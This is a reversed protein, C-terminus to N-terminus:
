KLNTHKQVKCVCLKYIKRLVSRPVRNLSGSPLHECIGSINEFDLNQMSNHLSGLCWLIMKVEPEPNLFCSLFHCEVLTSHLFM